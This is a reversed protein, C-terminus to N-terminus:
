LPYDDKDFLSFDVAKRRTIEFGEDLLKDIIEPKLHFFTLAIRTLIASIEEHCTRINGEAVELMLSREAGFLALNNIYNSAAGKVSSDSFIEGSFFVLKEFLIKWTVPSRLAALYLRYLYPNDLFNKTSIIRAITYKLFHDNYDMIYKEVISFHSDFIDGVVESFLEDKNKFYFFLLGTSIGSAETIQRTTTNTYGQKWFLGRAVTLINERKSDTKKKNMKKTYILSYASDICGFINKLKSM